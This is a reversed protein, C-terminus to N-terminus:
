ETVARTSLSLTLSKNLLSVSCRHTDLAVWERYLPPVGNVRLHSPLM